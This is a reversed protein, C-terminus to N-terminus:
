RYIVPVEQCNYKIAAFLRRCGDKVINTKRDVILPEHIPPTITPGNDYPKTRTPNKPFRLDFPNVMIISDNDPTVLGIEILQKVYNDCGERFELETCPHESREHLNHCLHQVEENTWKGSKLREIDDQLKKILKETKLIKENNLLICMFFMGDYNVYAGPFASSLTDRIAAIAIKSVQEDMRVNCLETMLADVSISHKSKMIKAENLQENYWFIEM